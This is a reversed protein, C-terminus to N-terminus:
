SDRFLDAFRAVETEMESKRRAIIPIGARTASRVDSPSCGFEQRFARSFSSADEFCFDAAIDAIPRQNAPDSLLACIRLLRQRQIYRAVGGAREFLRYLRSRSIGHTRCLSASGLQPSQLQVEITRRVRELQSCDIEERALIAREASPAICAAVMNRIAATLRPTDSEKMDPLSRQVAVFFDGLLGGWSPELATGKAADLLPALDRFVDRSMLVQTRDVPTRESEFQEGFSWLFPVGGAAEFNGRPTQGKTAGRKCYALAWHEIPAKALNARGRKVHVAPALVRSISIDGLNWVDNNALFGEGAPEIPTIDFTPAFWERWAELQDRPRM